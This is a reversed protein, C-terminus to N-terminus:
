DERFLYVDGGSGKPGYVTVYLDGMYLAVEVARASPFEEHAVRRAAARRQNMEREAKSMRPTTEEM